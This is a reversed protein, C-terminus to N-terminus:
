VGGYPTIREPVLDVGERKLLIEDLVDFTPSLTRVLIGKESFYLRTFSPGMRMVQTFERPRSYMNQLGGGGGLCIYNHNEYYFREYSHDHGYMVLSVNFHNVIPVIRDVLTQSVGLSSWIKRHFVLVRYDYAQGAALTANLWIDHALSRNSKPDEDGMDAIEAMVFLTSGWAFSYYSNNPPSAITFYEFYLNGPHDTNDHNGPCPILPMKHSFKSSQQFFRNWTAQDDPEQSIDGAYGVFKADDIQALADCITEYHGVGWLQQTDSIMVINFEETGYPATEFKGIACDAEKDASEGVRYYYIAAASLGTLKVHHIKTKTANLVSSTLASPDTGYEVYSPTEEETEWSIYVEHHPDLGTWHVWPCKAFPALTQTFNSIGVYIFLPSLVIVSLLTNIAIKKLKKKADDESM